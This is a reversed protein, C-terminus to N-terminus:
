PSDKGLGFVRAKVRHLIEMLRWTRSGRIAELQRELGHVKQVLRQNEEPQGGKERLRQENHSWRITKERKGLESRLEAM